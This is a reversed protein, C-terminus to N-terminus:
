AKSLHAQQNQSVTTTRNKLGDTQNQVYKELDRRPHSVLLVPFLHLPAPHRTSHDVLRLIRLIEVSISTPCKVTHYAAM